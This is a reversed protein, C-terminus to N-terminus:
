KYELYIIKVSATYGMRPLHVLNEPGCGLLPSKGYGQLIAEVGEFGIKLGAAKLELRARFGQVQHV